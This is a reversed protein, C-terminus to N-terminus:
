KEKGPLWPVRRHWLAMGCVSVVLKLIMRLPDRGGAGCEVRDGAGCEVRDCASMQIDMSKM